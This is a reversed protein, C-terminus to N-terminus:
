PPRAEDPYLGELRRYTELWVGELPPDRWTDPLVDGTLVGDPDEVVLIDIRVGGGDGGIVIDGPRVSVPMKGRLHERALSHPWNGDWSVDYAGALHESLSVYLEAIEGNVLRDLRSKGQKDATRLWAARENDPLSQLLATLGAVAALTSIMNRKHPLHQEHQTLIARDVNNPELGAAAALEEALERRDQEIGV